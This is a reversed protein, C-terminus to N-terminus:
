EAITLDSLDDQLPKGTRGEIEAREQAFIVDPTLNMRLELTAIREAQAQLIKDRDDIVPEPSELRKVLACLWKVRAKLTPMPALARDADRELAEVAELDEPTM